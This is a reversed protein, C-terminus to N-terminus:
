WSNNHNGPVFVVTLRLAYPMLRLAKLFLDRENSFSKKIIVFKMRLLIENKIIILGDM